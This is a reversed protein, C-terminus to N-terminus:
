RRLRFTLEITTTVPQPLPKFRWQRVAALAQDDLMPLGRLVRADTVRGDTGITVETEITGEVGARMAEPSYQPKVEFLVEPLTGRAAPVGEGVGGRLGGQEQMTFNVTVTMIVPVAQGDMVTPTFRWQMVADVAADDLLPISRLVRAQEVSGDVGILAELIVMGQVNAARAEPPYLPRVDRIKVPTKVTGGVRVPALGSASVLPAAATQSRAAGAQASNTGSQHLASTEGDERFLVTVGFVTPALTPPEYRWHGIAYEAAVALSEAARLAVQIREASLREKLRADLEGGFTGAVSWQTGDDRGGITYSVRRVEVPVGAGDVTVRLIISGRVGSGSVDPPMVPAQYHTRRPFPNEPGVAHARQEVPGAGQQVTRATLPFTTTGYLGAGALALPLVAAATAIRTSSMAAGKALSQIRQFLHRRRAFAAAPVAGDDNAFTLLAEIYTRRRGIVLVAMEDVTGERALDIRSVIWWIAPNFWLIARVAEEFLHWLWDRRQVHLLEHTAIARRFEEAQESISTPLLVVPRRLGFTVPMALDPVYRIAASTGLAQQIEEYGEGPGAPRGASRLRHLQALSLALWSARAVIGLLIVGAAFGLWDVTSPAAAAAGTSAEMAVEGAAVAAAAPLADAVPRSWSQVWPLALCLGLVVRWYIYSLSPAHLRLAAHAATAAAAVILVQATYAALNAAFPHDM